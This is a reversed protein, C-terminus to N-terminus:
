MLYIIISNTYKRIMEKNLNTLKMQSPQMYENPIMIALIFTSKLADCPITLKILANFVPKIKM